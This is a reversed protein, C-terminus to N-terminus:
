DHLQIEKETESPVSFTIYNGTKGGLCDLWGNFEKALEKIIFKYHFNLENHLVIVVNRSTEKKLKCISHAATINTWIIAIIEFKLNTGTLIVRWIRRSM